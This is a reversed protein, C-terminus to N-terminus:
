MPAFWAIRLVAEKRLREAERVLVDYGEAIWELAQIWARQETM